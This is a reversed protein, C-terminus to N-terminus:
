HNLDDCDEIEKFKKTKGNSKTNRKCKELLYYVSRRLQIFNARIFESTHLEVYVVVVPILLSFFAQKCISYFFM